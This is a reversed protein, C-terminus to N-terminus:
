CKASVRVPRGHPPLTARRFHERGLCPPLPLQLPVSGANRWFRSRAHSSGRPHCYASASGTAARVKGWAVPGVCFGAYVPSKLVAVPIRVGTEATLPRRGLGRSSPPRSVPLAVLPDASRGPGKAC